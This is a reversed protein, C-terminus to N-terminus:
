FPYARKPFIVEVFYVFSSRILTLSRIIPFVTYLFINKLSSTIDRKYSNSIKQNITDIGSLSDAAEELATTIVASLSKFANDLVGVEEVQDKLLQKGKELDKNAM